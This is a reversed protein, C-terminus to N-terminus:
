LYVIVFTCFDVTTQFTIRNCGSELTPRIVYRMCHNQSYNHPSNPQSYLQKLFPQGVLTYFRIRCHQFSNHTNSALMKKISALFMEDHSFSVVCVRTNINKRDEFM